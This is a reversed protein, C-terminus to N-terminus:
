NPRCARRPRPLSATHPRPAALLCSEGAPPKQFTQRNGSYSAKDAPRSHVNLGETTLGRIKYLFHSAPPTHAEAIQSRGGDKQGRIQGPKLGAPLAYRRDPLGCTRRLSPDRLINASPLGLPQRTESARLGPPRAGSVAPRDGAISVPVRCRGAHKGRLPRQQSALHGTAGSTHHTLGTLIVTLRLM